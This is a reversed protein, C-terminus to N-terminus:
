KGLLYYGMTGKDQQKKLFTAKLNRSPKRRIREVLELLTKARSFPSRMLLMRNLVRIEPNADAIKATANTTASAPQPDLAVPDLEAEDEADETTALAEADDVDDPLVVEAAELPELEVLALVAFLLMDETGVFSLKCVVSVIVFEASPSCAM